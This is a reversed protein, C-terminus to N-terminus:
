FNSNRAVLRMALCRSYWQDFREQTIIKDKLDRAVTGDPMYDNLKRNLVRWEPCLNKLQWCLKFGIDDQTKYEFATNPIIHHIEIEGKLFKEWNMDSFFSKEIHEKLVSMSYGIVKETTQGRKENGLYHKLLSSLRLRLSFQPDTKRRDKYYKYVKEKNNDRWKKANKNCQERHNERYEQKQLNVKDKNDKAWQRNYTDINEKNKIYYDQRQKKINEKNKSMYEQRKKNHHNQNKKTWEKQYKRIHDRKQQQYEKECLKCKHQVPRHKITNSKNFDEVRKFNHCSFCNWIPILFLM